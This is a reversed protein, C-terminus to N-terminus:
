GTTTEKKKEKKGEQCIGFDSLTVTPDKCEKDVETAVFVINRFTDGKGSKGTQQM